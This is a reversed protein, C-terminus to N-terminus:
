TGLSSESRQARVKADRKSGNSDGERLVCMGLEEAGLEEEFGCRQIRRIQDQSPREWEM